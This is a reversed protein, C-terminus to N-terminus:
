PRNRWCTITIGRALLAAELEPATLPRSLYGVLKATTQKFADKCIKAWDLDPCGMVTAKNDEVAYAWFCEQLDPDVGDVVPSKSENM